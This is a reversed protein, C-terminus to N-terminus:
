AEWYIRIRGSGSNDKIGDFGAYDGGALGIGHGNILPTGWSTPLDVWRGSSNAPLTITISDVRNVDGGPRKKSTHRHVQFTASGNHNGVKRRAPIWLQVKTPTKGDLKSLKDHYFWAGRQNGPSGWGSGTMVDTGYRDNWVGVGTSFTGSNSATFTDSGTVPKPPPPAPKPPKPKPPPPTPPAVAGIKALVTGVVGGNPATQWLLRVRDNVVPTYNSTTTATMDGATTSVVATLSGAAWTKITGEIPLPVVPEYDRAVGLVFPASSTSDTYDVIVMALPDGDEAIVHELWIASLVNGGISVKKGAECFGTELRTTRVPKKFAQALILASNM